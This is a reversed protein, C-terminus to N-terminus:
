PQRRNQVPVMGSRVVPLRPTVPGGAQRSVDCCTGRGVLLVVVHTQSDVNAAATVVRDGSAKSTGGVTGLASVTVM